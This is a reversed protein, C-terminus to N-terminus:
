LHLRAEAAIAEEMQRLTKPRGRYKLFGFLRDWSGHKLRRPQLLIGGESEQVLFETGAKWGHSARVSKPLVVQGKSSLKTTHSMTLRGTLNDCSEFWPVLVM